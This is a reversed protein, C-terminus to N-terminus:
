EEEFGADSLDLKNVTTSGIDIELWDRWQSMFTSFYLIFKRETGERYLFDVYNLVAKDLLDFDETNKCQSLATKFGRSKGMKKPYKAYIQEVRQLNDKKSGVM